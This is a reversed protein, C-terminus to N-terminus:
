SVTLRARLGSANRQAVKKIDITFLSVGDQPAVYGGKM